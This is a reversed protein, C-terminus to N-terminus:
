WLRRFAPCCPWAVGSNSALHGDHPFCPGNSSFIKIKMDFPGNSRTLPRSIHGACVARAILDATM